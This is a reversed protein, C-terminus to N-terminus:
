GGSAGAGRPLPISTAAQRDLSGAAATPSPPSRPDSSSSGPGFVAAAVKAALARALALATEDDTAFDRLSFDVVLNRRRMMVTTGSIVAEDRIGALPKPDTSNAISRGTVSKKYLSQADAASRTEVITIRLVRSGAFFVCAQDHQGDAGIVVKMPGPSVETIRANLTKEIDEKAFLRCYDSVSRAFAAPVLSLGCLCALAALPLPSFLPRRRTM